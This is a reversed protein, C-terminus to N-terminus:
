LNPKPRIAAGGQEIAKKYAPRSSVREHWARMNPWSGDVRELCAEVPYVMQIDAASFEHGAFYERRGLVGEVFEFHTKLAGTTFKEDITNAVRKAIPRIFFPLPAARVGSTILSILLPPTASGEAYHLFFRYEILADPDTPRLKGEREVFYEIIAGSEALVRGDVEVMPFLGLPHVERARAPARFNEDREWSKIEFPLALENLLWLARTSRSFNLHHVLITM